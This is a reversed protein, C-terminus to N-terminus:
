LFSSSECEWWAIRPLHAIAPSLVFRLYGNFIQRTVFASASAYRRVKASLACQDADPHDTGRKTIFGPMLVNGSASIRCLATLFHSDASEKFVPSKSLARPVIIKRSKQRGSKSAGFGTEDLNPILHPSIQSSNLEDLNAFHQEIDAIKINYRDEELPQALRIVFDNGLLRELCRTYYATSPTANVGTGELEAVIQEKVESLTPWDRSTAQRQL